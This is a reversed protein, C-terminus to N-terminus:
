GFMLRRVEEEDEGMEPYRETMEKDLMRRTAAHGAEGSKNAQKQSCMKLKAVKLMTREMARQATILKARQYKNNEM